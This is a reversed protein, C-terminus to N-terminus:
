SVESGSQEWLGLCPASCGQHLWQRYVLCVTHRLISSDLYSFIHELIEPV